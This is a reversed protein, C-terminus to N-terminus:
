IPLRQQRLVDPAVEMRRPLRDGYRQHYFHSGQARRGGRQPSLHTVEFRLVVRYVGIAPDELRDCVERVARWRAVLEAWREPSLSRVGRRGGDGVELFARRRLEDLDRGPRRTDYTMAAAIRGRWGTQTTPVDNAKVIPV